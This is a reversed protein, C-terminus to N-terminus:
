AAIGEDAEVGSRIDLGERILGLDVTQTGLGSGFSWSVSLISAKGVVVPEGRGDYIALHAVERDYATRPDPVVDLTVREQRSAMEETLAMAVEEATADSDLLPYRIRRYRRDPGRGIVSQPDRPRVVRGRAHGRRGHPDNTVLVIGADEAGESQRVQPDNLIESSMASGAYAVPPLIVGSPVNAAWRRVPQRRRLRDKSRRDTVLVGSRDSWLPYCGARRALENALDLRPTSGEWDKRRPMKEGTDPIRYRPRGTGDETLVSGDLLHRLAADCQVGAAIRYPVMQGSSPSVQTSKLLWLPDRAEVDVTGSWEGRHVTSPLVQYLGLRGERSTGDPYTQKVVPVLWDYLPRLGAWGEMTVTASLTWTIDRTPDLTIGMDLVGTVPELLVGDYTARWLTWDTRLRGDGIPRPGDGTAAAEAPTRLRIPIPQRISVSLHEAGAWRGLDSRYSGIAFPTPGQGRDEEVQGGDLWLTAAGAAVERVVIVEASTLTKLPDTFFAPAELRAWGNAGGDGSIVIGVAREGDESTGDAYHGRVFTALGDVTGSAYVTGWSVAAVGAYALGRVTAVAVGEDAGLGPLVVRVSRVGDWARTTEASLTAGGIASWDNLSAEASPNRVLNVTGPAEWVEAAHPQPIAYVFYADLGLGLRAEGALKHGFRLPAPATEMSLGLAAAIEARGGLRGTLGLSLQVEGALRHGLSLRAPNTAATLALGGGIKPTLSLVAPETALDLPLGATIQHVVGLGTLHLGLSLRVEGSLPHTGALRAPETRSEIGLAASVPDTADGIALYLVRDAIAYNPSWVGGFGGNGLADIALSGVVNLGNRQYARDTLSAAYVNTPDALNDDFYGAAVGTNPAATAGITVHANGQATASTQHTGAFLVATPRFGVAVDSRANAGTPKTFAGARILGGALCLSVVRRSSAPATIVDVAFGDSGFGAATARLPMGLLADVERLCAAETFVRQTNGKNTGGVSFAHAAWQGGMADAAGIGVSAGGANGEPGGFLHIAATPRFDVGKIEQVGPTTRTLWSVLRAQVTEGGIALYHILYPETDNVLWNLAFGDDNFQDLKARALIAGGGSAFLALTHTQQAETSGAITKGRNHISTFARTRFRNPLDEGVGDDVGMFGYVSGRVVGSILAGVSWLLLAKPRFGLGTVSQPGIGDTKKAFTGSATLVPAPPIAVVPDAPAFGEDEAFDVDGWTLTPDTM